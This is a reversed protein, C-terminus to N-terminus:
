LSAMFETYKENFEEHQEFQAWHDCGHMEVLTSNPMIKDLEYANDLFMNPADVAAVIFSPQEIAKWEDFSLHQDGRSFALLHPMAKGMEPQSYIRYRVDILDDILNEENLVLGSLANRVSEWTPVAAANSRKKRLAEAFAREKEEDLVIGAPAVLAMSKIREPAIQCLRAGVWSGLSVGLLHVEQIGLADLVDIVHEAYDSILYPRDPKDTYGCGLMDIGLVHYNESLPGYNAAFNEVSGATGHLALITEKKPDGAELYRTNIGKADVWAVKHAVTNLHHWISSYTNENVTM